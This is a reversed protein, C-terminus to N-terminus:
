CIIRRENELFDFYFHCSGVELFSLEYCVFLIRLGLLFILCRSVMLRAHNLSAKTKTEIHSLVLPNLLRIEIFAFLGNSSKKM